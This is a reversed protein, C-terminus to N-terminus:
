ASLLGFSGVNDTGHNQEGLMKVSVDHVLPHREFRLQAKFTELDGQLRSIMETMRTQERAMTIINDQLGQYSLHLQALADDYISSHM